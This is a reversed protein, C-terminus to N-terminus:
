FFGLLVFLLLAAKDRPRRRLSYFNTLLWRKSLIMSRFEPKFSSVILDVQKRYWKTRVLRVRDAYAGLGSNIGVQNREHQRYLMGPGDSIFWKYGKCRAYAYLFWDHNTTLQSAYNEFSSFDYRFEELLSSCLVFTCGPGPSEFFHDYSAQPFSKKLLARKGNPWFALVDSSYGVSGTAKLDSIAACLKDSFWIDDQDALAVYDYESCDVSRIIHLFNMAASGYQSGYPLLVIRRELDSLQEILVETGDNSRDVSVFITVDVNDQVLISKVQEEVWPVGNYAAMLVAVRPM